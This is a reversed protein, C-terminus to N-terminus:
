MGNRAQNRGRDKAIIFIVIQRDSISNGQYRQCEWMNLIPMKTKGSKIMIAMMEPTFADDDLKSGSLTLGTTCSIGIQFTM